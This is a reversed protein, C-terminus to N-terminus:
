SIIQTQPTDCCSGFIRKYLEARKLPDDLSEVLELRQLEELNKLQESIAMADQAKMNFCDLAEGQGLVADAVVSSTRLTHTAVKLIPNKTKISFGTEENVVYEDEINKRIRWFSETEELDLCSGVAYEVHEIYDIPKDLYNFVTCYPKLLTQRVVDIHEPLVTAELLSDLEELEVVQLSETYGNCFAFRVNSLTTISIYQQLLQRFVFNLVRSKNYNTIERVISEEEGEKFSNTSSTNIDIQRNSNSTQVHKDLARNVSKVNATRTASFSSGSASSSGWEYGGNVGINVIGFLSVGVSGGVKGNRTKTESSSTNSTSSDSLGTEQELLKELENTSSESFSDLVNESYSKTVSSEKYTKVSITTKEGPLLSFTKISRGAGYDGLYSCTTYEEIVAFYPVAKVPQRVYTVKTEYGGLKEIVCPRLGQQAIRTLQVENLANTKEMIRPATAPVSSEVQLFSALSVAKLDSDKLSIHKRLLEAQPLIMDDTRQLQIAEAFRQQLVKPETKQVIEFYNGPPAVKTEPKFVESRIGKVAQTGYMTFCASQPISYNLVPAKGTGLKIFPEKPNCSEESLTQKLKKLTDISKDLM